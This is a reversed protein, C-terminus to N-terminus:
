DPKSNEAAMTEPANKAAAIRANWPRLRRRAKRGAEACQRLLRIYRLMAEMAGVDTRGLAAAHLLAGKVRQYTKEIEPALEEFSPEGSGGESEPWALRLSDVTMRRLATVDAEIDDDMPRLEIESLEAAIVVVEELHQVGRVIDPIADVIGEPVPGKNVEGIFSRIERGLRLVGRERHAIDAPRPTSDDIRSLAIRFVIGAMHMAELVLGRLALDPVGALTSDLHRPRGIEEDASVFRRGLWRVLWPAVPWILIVGLCNFLTHFVALTVAIDIARGVHRVIAESAALLWPFLVLAVVATLLNFAIHAGAVRKAPPTAGIAVFAATSTTGINTGIVTAAALALPVGGGGAATLVIAVAASSSQTMVTLAIGFGVFLLVTVWHSPDLEPLALGPALAGFGQQLFGIGLFFAGFGAIAQGFGSPRPRDQAALRLLMGVGLLPLALAGVDVKVGVAAVLWGTMTTGVNTGFVVWVSQTLNLLGANVFGITAVTVASSSQVIATILMGALLGRWRSSTASRLIAQLTGAAALKLGDTLMWMGLLFLGIGGLISAITTM